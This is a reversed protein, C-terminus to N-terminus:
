VLYGSRHDILTIFSGCHYNPLHKKATVMNSTSPCQSVPSKPYQDLGKKALGYNRFYM